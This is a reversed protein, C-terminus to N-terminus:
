RVSVHAIDLTGKFIFVVDSLKCAHQMRYIRCKKKCSIIYIIHKNHNCSCPIIYTQQKDTTPNHFCYPSAEAPPETKPTQRWNQLIWLAVLFWLTRHWRDGTQINTTILVPTKIYKNIFKKNTLKRQVKEFRQHKKTRPAGGIQKSDWTCFHWTKTCRSELLSWSSVKSQFWPPNSWPM